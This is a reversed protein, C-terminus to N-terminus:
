NQLPAGAVFYSKRWPDSSSTGLDFLRKAQCLDVVRQSTARFRKSRDIHSM